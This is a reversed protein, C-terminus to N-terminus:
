RKRIQKLSKEVFKYAEEESVYKAQFTYLYVTDKLKFSYNYAKHNLPPGTDIVRFKVSFGAIIREDGYLASHILDKRNTKESMIVIAAKYKEAKLYDGHIFEYPPVKSQELKTVREFEAADSQDADLKSYGIVAPGHKREIEGREASGVTEMMFYATKVPLNDHYPIYVPTQLVDSIEQEIETYPTQVVENEQAPKGEESFIVQNVLFYGGIVLVIGTLITNLVPRISWKITARESKEVSEIMNEHINRKEQDSLKIAKFSKLRDDYNTEKKSQTM